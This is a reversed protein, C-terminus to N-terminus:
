AGNKCTAAPNSDPRTLMAGGHGAQEEPGGGGQDGPRLGAVGDEEGEQAGARSRKRRGRRLQGAHRQDDRRVPLLRHDRRLHGVREREVPRAFAELDDDRDVAARLGARVVRGLAGAVRTGVDHELQRAAPLDPRLVGGHAGRAAVQEGEAVRVRQPIGARQPRQRRREGVRPHAVGAPPHGEDVLAARVLLADVPAVLHPQAAALGREGGDRRAVARDVRHAGRRVQLHVGHHAV